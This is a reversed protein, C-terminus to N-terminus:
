GNSAGAGSLTAMVLKCARESLSDLSISPLEACLWKEYMAAIGSLIYEVVYPSLAADGIQSAFLVRIGSIYERRMESSIFTHKAGSRVFVRFFELNEEIARNLESFLIHIDVGDGNAKCSRKLIDQAFAFLDEGFDDIIEETKDYHLYFTKRNIKAHATLETVSIDSIDKICLLEILAGIIARKTKIVRKDTKIGSKTKVEAKCINIEM